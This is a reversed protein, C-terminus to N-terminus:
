IRSNEIASKLSEMKKALLQTYINYSLTNKMLSSVEKDMDVNNGDNRVTGNADEKSLVIKPQLSDFKNMSNDKIVKELQEAFSVEMKKYGPTNINAINNAIVKHKIASVDLMKELLNISKDIGTIM